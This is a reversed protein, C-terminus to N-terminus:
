SRSTEHPTACFFLRYRGTGELRPSRHVLGGDPSKAGKFLGVAFRPMEHIPGSYSGQHELAARAHSGPVYVTGPGTYTSVLRARYNDYHFRKCADTKIAELRLELEDSETLRAFISTQMALDAALSEALHEAPLAFASLMDSLAAPADVSRLILTFNPLEEFSLRDLQAVITPDLSRQWLALTVDPDNWHELIEASSDTLQGFACTKSESSEWSATSSMTMNGTEGTAIEIDEVLRDDM